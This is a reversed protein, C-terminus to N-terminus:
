VFFEYTIQNTIAGLISLLGGSIFQGLMAGLFFPVGKRYLKLGGGRLMLYKILWSLFVSFWMWSMTWSGAVAFGVPHFPFWLFMRRMIMLFTTLGLGFSMQVLVEIDPTSPNNMWNQM